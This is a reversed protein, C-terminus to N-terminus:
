VLYVIVSMVLISILQYSTNIALLHKNFKRINFLADTFQTVAVLGLWLLGGILLANGVSHVYTMKLIVSIVAAQVIAAVFSLGYWAGMSKQAEKLTKDTFGMLRAWTKGMVYPSYWAFGILMNAVAALLVALISVSPFIM